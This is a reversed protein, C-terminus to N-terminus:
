RGIAVVTGVEIRDELVMWGGICLAAAVSFHHMLNMFLNMSYKFWYIGMNLAFIRQIAAHLTVPSSEFSGDAISGSAERKVLIRAQARRNIAAQLVPVVLTQPLFFALGLLALWPQLLFMYTIVSVLIGGQLLPESISVGVFGGIPEAEEVIMAIEVGTGEASAAHTGPAAGVIRARLSRVTSEAVWGPAAGIGPTPWMMATDEPLPPTPLLVTVMLRATAM